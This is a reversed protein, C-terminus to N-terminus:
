CDIVGSFAEGLMSPFFLAPVVVLLLWFGALGLWPRRRGAHMVMGFAASPVVFPLAAPLLWWAVAVIAVYLAVGALRVNRDGMVSGNPGTVRGM